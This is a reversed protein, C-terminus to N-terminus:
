ICKSSSQMFSDIKPSQLPDIITHHTHTMRLQLAGEHHAWEELDKYAERPQNAEEHAEDPGEGDSGGDSKNPQGQKVGSAGTSAVM